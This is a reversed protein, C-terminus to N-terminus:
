LDDVTMEHRGPDGPPFAVFAHATHPYLSFSWAAPMHREHSMVLHSENKDALFYFTNLHMLKCNVSNKVHSSGRRKQM